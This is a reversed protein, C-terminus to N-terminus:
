YPRTPESIHILSLIQLQNIGNEGKKFKKSTYNNRDFYVRKGDKSQTIIGEHYKTNIKESIGSAPGAKGNKSVSTSYIDLLAEGNLAHKKRSGNKASAFYLTEGYRVAGFDSNETNFNVPTVSYIPRANLKEELDNINSLYSKARPDNPQASIFRQMQAKYEDMKGISKLTRAHGLINEPKASTGKSLRRYYREAEKYNSVNEYSIALREFTENTAKGKRIDELYDEIAYTYELRKFHKDASVSRSNNRQAYTQAVIFLALFLISNKM